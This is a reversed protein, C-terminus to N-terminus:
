REVEGGGIEGIEGVRIELWNERIELVTIEM